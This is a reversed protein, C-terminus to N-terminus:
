CPDLYRVLQRHHCYCGQYSAPSITRFAKEGELLLTVRQFNSELLTRYRSGYM